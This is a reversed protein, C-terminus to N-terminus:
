DLFEDRVSGLRTGGHKPARDRGVVDVEFGAYTPYFRRLKWTTVNSGNKMAREFPYHPLRMRDNRVNRGDLHRIVVPFGEIKEIRREVSGVTAV